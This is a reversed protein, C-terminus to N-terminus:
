PSRAHAALILLSNYVVVAPALAAEHEVAAGDVFTPAKCQSLKTYAAYNQDRENVLLTRKLTM